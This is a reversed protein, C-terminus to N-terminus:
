VDFYLNRSRRASASKSQILRTAMTSFRVLKIFVGVQNLIHGAVLVIARQDAPISQFQEKSIPVRYVNIAADAQQGTSNGFRKVREANIKTFNEVLNQGDGLASEGLAIASKLEAIPVRNATPEEGIKISKLM